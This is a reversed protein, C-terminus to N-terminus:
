IKADYLKDLELNLELVNITREGLLGAIRKKSKKNILLILENEGINRERSIRSVQSLAGNLTIHPDLGSGSDSVLNIDPKVSSYTYKNLTEKTRSIDKRSFYPTNSSQSIKPNFNIASYRGHFYKSHAFNQGILKSGIVTKDKIILSGQAKNRLIFESPFVSFTFYLLVMLILIISSRIATM